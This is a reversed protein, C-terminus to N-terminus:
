AARVAHIEEILFRTHERIEGLQPDSWWEGFPEHRREDLRTAHAESIVGARVLDRVAAARGAASDSM